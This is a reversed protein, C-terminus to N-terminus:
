VWSTRWGLRSEAALRRGGGFRHGPFGWFSARSCKRVYDRLGVLLPVMFPRSARVRQPHDSASAQFGARELDVVLPHQM